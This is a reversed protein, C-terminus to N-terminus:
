SPCRVSDRACRVTLHVVPQHLDPEGLGFKELEIERVKLLNRASLLIFNTWFCNVLAIIMGQKEMKM